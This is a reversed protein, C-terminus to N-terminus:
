EEDKLLQEEEKFENSYSVMGTLGNIKVSGKEDDEGQLNVIHYGSYGFPSFRITHIGSTEVSDGELPLVLNHFSVGSFKEDLDKYFIQEYEIHNRDQKEVEVPVLLWYTNNSLDYQIYVDRSLSVAQVKAMRCDSGIERMAARLKYHPFLNDLSTISVAYLLGIVFVVIIIELLTFGSRDVLKRETLMM